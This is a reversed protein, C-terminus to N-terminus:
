MVPPYWRTSKLWEKLCKQGCLDEVPHGCGLSKDPKAMPGPGPRGPRGPKGPRGPIGFRYRGPMGFRCRGSM